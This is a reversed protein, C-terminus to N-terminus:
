GLLSRLFVLLVLLLVALGLSLISKKGFRRPAPAPSEDGTMERLLERARDLDDAPVMIEVGFVGGVTYIDRSGGQKAADIGNEALLALMRDADEGSAAYAARIRNKPDSHETHAM